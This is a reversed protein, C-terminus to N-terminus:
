SFTGNFSLAVWLFDQTLSNPNVKYEEKGM